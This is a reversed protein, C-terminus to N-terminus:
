AKWRGKAFFRATMTPTGSTTSHIYFAPWSTLTADAAGTVWCQANSSIIRIDWSHVATLTIPLARAVSPGSTVFVSGSATTVTVTGLVATRTLIATGDQYLTYEGNSNSGSDIIAGNAMLGVVDVVAASGLGLGTRAGAQTTGGTGGQSISLATTLGSLSTIDNNAGSAAKGEVSSSIATAQAQLKGVAVLLADTAVVSSSDTTALGTLVSEIVSSNTLYKNTEGEPLGDANTLNLATRVGALTPDEGLVALVGGFQNVLARLADASDKVYGQMPALAYVGSANTAGQYPPDIAMVTDSAINTIEYWGGDPGRFADGVRSNAIFATGAGIIANSNQTVSVTGTKYWPM